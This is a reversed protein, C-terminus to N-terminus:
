FALNQWRIGRSQWRIGRARAGGAAGQLGRGCSAWGAAWLGGRAPLLLDRPLAAVEPRGPSPGWPCDRAKRVRLVWLQGLVCLERPMLLLPWLPVPRRRWSPRRCGLLGPLGPPGPLVRADDEARVRGLLPERGRGPYHIGGGLSPTLWSDRAGRSAGLEELVHAPDPGCARPTPSPPHPRRFLISPMCCGPKLQWRGLDRGSVACAPPPSQPPSTVAEPEGASPVAQLGVAQRRTRARTRISRALPGLSCLGQLARERPSSRM